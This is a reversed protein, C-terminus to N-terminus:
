MIRTVGRVSSLLGRLIKIISYYEASFGWGLKFMSHSFELVLTRGTSTLAIPTKSIGCYKGQLASPKRAVDYIALYNITCNENTSLHLRTIQLVIQFARPVLLVWLCKTRPYTLRWVKFDINGRKDKMMHGCKVFQYNVSFGNAVWKQTTYFRVLLSRGSSVVAPNEGGCTPGDLIPSLIDEGDYIIVRDSYCNTFYQVEFTTFQLFVHEERDSTKIIWKCNVNNPYLDPFNPSTFTGEKTRFLGGCTHCNYLKNVKLADLSSMGFRQGININADPKPVITASQGDKSFAFRGYHMVSSYDYKTGLNNTDLKVFNFETGKRINKDIITVYNDRDSRSQEHNFGVSHLLEHQIIGPQICGYKGLSIFQVRSNYGINSWCGRRSIIRIYKSEHRRYVFKVCTLFDFEKMSRQIQSQQSKSFTRDMTYPIYVIGDSSRPWLCSKPGVLCKIANKSSGIAIDGYVIEKKNNEEIWKNSELIRTFVDVDTYDKFNAKLYDQLTKATANNVMVPNNWTVGLLSLILKVGFTFDM